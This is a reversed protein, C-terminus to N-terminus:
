WTLWKHLQFDVAWGEVKQPIRYFRTNAIPNVLLLLHHHHTHITTGAAASNKTEEKWQWSKSHSPGEFKVSSPDLQVMCALYRPWLNHIYNFFTTLCVCKVSQEVQVVLINSLIHRIANLVTFLPSPTSSAIDSTVKWHGVGNVALTRVKMNNPRMAHIAYIRGIRVPTARETRIDTDIPCM